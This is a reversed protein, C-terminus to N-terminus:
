TASIELGEIWLMPFLLMLQELGEILGRNRERLTWTGMHTYKSGLTGM